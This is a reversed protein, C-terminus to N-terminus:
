RFFMKFAISDNSRKDTYSWFFNNELLPMIFIQEMEKKKMCLLVSYHMIVNYICTSLYFAIECVFGKTVFAYAKKCFSSIRNLKM